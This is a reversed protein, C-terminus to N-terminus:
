RERSQVIRWYAPKPEAASVFLRYRKRSSWPWFPSDTANSRGVWIPCSGSAGIAWPSAPLTPTEMAVSSSMCSRKSPIGSSLTEVDIVILAV